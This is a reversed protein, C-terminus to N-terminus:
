QYSDFSDETHLEVVGLSSRTVMRPASPILLSLQSHIEQFSPRQDPVLWCSQLIHWLQDSPQTKTPKELTLGNLVKEAVEKTSLIQYYPVAGELIEYM